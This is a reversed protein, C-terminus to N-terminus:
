FRKEDNQDFYKRDLVLFDIIEAGTRRISPKVGSKLEGNRIEKRVLVTSRNVFAPLKHVKFTLFTISTVFLPVVM